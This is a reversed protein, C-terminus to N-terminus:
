DAEMCIRLQRDAEDIARIADVRHGHFDHAAHELHAKANHLADIAARIEPHREFAPSTPTFAMMLAAVTLIGMVKRKM